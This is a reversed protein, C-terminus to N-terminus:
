LKDEVVGENKLSVPLTLGFLDALAQSMEKLVTLDVTFFNAFSQHPILITGRQCVAKGGRGRM